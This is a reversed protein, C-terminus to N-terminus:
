KMHIYGYLISAILVVYMSYLDLSFIGLLTTTVLTDIISNTIGVGMVTSIFISITADVGYFSIQSNSFCWYM